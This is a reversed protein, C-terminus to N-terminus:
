LKCAAQVIFEEQDRNCNGKCINSLVNKEAGELEVGELAQVAFM